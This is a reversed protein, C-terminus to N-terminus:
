ASEFATVKAELQEIRTKSEQLAAVLLPIIETYRVSLYETNDDLDSVNVPSVAEPVVKQVSQASLGVQPVNNLDSKWTFKIAELGAVSELANVFSGTINKLRIDSVSSWSTAGYTLQVGTGANNTISLSPSTGTGLTYDIYRGSANQYRFINNYSAHSQTIYLGVRQGNYNFSVADTDGASVILQGTLTTVGSSSIRMRETPSSAGDATTSFVLRGPVDGTSVSGDTRFNSGDSANFILSGIDNGDALATQTGITGSKSRSIIIETGGETNLQTADSWQQFQATANWQNRAILLAATYGATGGVYDSYATSTGILLRGDSDLRARETGSTFFMLPGYSGSGLYTSQLSVGNSPTTSTGAIFVSGTAGGDIRLNGGRGHILTDPSTVGIGVRGSDDIRLREAGNTFVQLKDAGDHQIRTSASGFDIRAASAATDGVQINGNVELAQAPSSVGIGVLGASTIRLRETGATQALLAGSSNYIGTTYSGSGSFFIGGNNRTMFDNATYINGAVHLPQLPSSENVGVRGSADIFLRGTGGTTLALQDAGPSYLGTNPDSTFSFTPASASGLAGTIPQVLNDILQAKTQSM